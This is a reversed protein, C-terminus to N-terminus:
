VIPPDDKGENRLDLPHVFASSTASIHAETVMTGLPSKPRPVNSSRQLEVAALIASKKVWKEVKPVVLGPDVSWVEIMIRKFIGDITAKQQSVM